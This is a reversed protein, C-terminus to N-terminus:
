AKKEKLPNYIAFVVATALFVIIEIIIASHINEGFVVLLFKLWFSSLFGGLNMLALILSIAVAVTAPPTVLGAWAFFTPMIVSFGFGVMMLGISMIIASNGFFVVMAGFGALAYGLTLCWKKAVKFITGYLFGAVCGAVTFLSLATAAATAGGAERMEFLISVNMMIPFNLMNFLLFLIAILFVGSGIKEKKITPTTRDTKQVKEPEPLFFAMLLGIACFAHGWFTLNWSTEALAGGLMQFAIGGANMFLTGFGLMSAQKQGKYLGLVLANGLPSILGIGLGMIARCVLTGAYNDFLAPACGGIFYLLTAAIALTRYKVGRSMLSGAAFTALVVFLTPLTSIWSVDKGEFHKALIAMAPTVVTYGMQVVFMALIAATSLASLKKNKTM